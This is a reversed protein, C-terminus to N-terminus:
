SRTVLGVYNLVIYISIKPKCTLSWRGKKREISGLLNNM